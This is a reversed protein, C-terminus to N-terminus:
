FYGLSPRFLLIESYNIEGEKVETCQMPAHSDLQVMTTNIDPAQRRRESYRYQTNYDALRDKKM